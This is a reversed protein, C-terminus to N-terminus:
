RPAAAAVIGSGTARWVSEHKVIHELAADLIGIRFPQGILFPHLTLVLLRPNDAGDSYLADFTEGIMRGYRDADMRRDWLANVDDLPLSVPLATLEGRPVNMRYPQEDNAWDCVYRIGAEALLQPTRASEGSEPGLWGTPVKGTASAVTDISTRIYEREEAESMRSTIMRNVSIGHAIIEGKRELCHHVLFPYHQATMADLAITPPIGHKELVNLVRFVGVRHGYERHSWATVDPFPGGWGYGGALNPVQYSDDPRKWEAYGLSVIVCLAVRANGPWAMKPRSANLPSWEYHDHDMGRRFEPFAYNKDAAM